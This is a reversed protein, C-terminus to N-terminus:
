ERGTEMAREARDHGHPDYGLEDLRRALEARWEKDLPRPPQAIRTEHRDDYGDRVGLGIYEDISATAEELARDTLDPALLGIKGCLNVYVACWAAKHLELETSGGDLLALVARRGAAGGGAARYVEAQAPTLMWGHRSPQFRAQELKDRLTDDQGRM